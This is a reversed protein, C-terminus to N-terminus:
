GLFDLRFAPHRPAIERLQEDSADKEVGLFDKAEWAWRDLYLRLLPLKDGDEVETARFHRAAGRVRLEGEGAARLNRAWQTTGRPALLYTEDDLEFPNVPTTRVEGSKRGRVALTHAGALPLGLRALGKVLPNFVHATIWGPRKFVTEAM